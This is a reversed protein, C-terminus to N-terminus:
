SPAAAIIALAEAFGNDAGAAWELAEAVKHMGQPRSLTLERDLVGEGFAAADRMQRAAKAIEERNRM